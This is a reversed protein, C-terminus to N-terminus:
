LAALTGLLCGNVSCDEVPSMMGARSDAAASAARLGPSILNGVAPM